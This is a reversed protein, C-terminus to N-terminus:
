LAELARLEAPDRFVIAGLRRRQIEGHEDLLEAGWRQLIRERIAPQRLAQHGLEDGSIIRAGRQALAAAIRSKGSGIGGILGIVPTRSSSRPISAASEHNM